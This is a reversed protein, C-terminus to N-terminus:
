KCNNYIKMYKLMELFYGSNSEQIIEHMCFGVRKAQLDFSILIIYFMCEIKDLHM